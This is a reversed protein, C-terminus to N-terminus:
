DTVASNSDGWLGAVQGGQPDVRDLQEGHKLPVLQLELTLLVRAIVHGVDPAVRVHIEKRRHAPKCDPTGPRDGCSPLELFHDFRPHIYRYQM